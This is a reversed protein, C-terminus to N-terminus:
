KYDYNDKYYIGSKDSTVVVSEMREAIDWIWQILTLHEVLQLDIIYISDWHKNKKKILKTLNYNIYSNIHTHTSYM